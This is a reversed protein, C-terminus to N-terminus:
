EVPMNQMPPGIVDPKFLVRLFILFPVAVLFVAFLVPMVRTSLVNLELINSASQIAVIGLILATPAALFRHDQLRLAQKLCLLAIFWSVTVVAYIGMIWVGIFLIDVNQIFQGVNILRVMSFSPFTIDAAGHGGFILIAAMVTVTILSIYTFLAAYMARRLTQPQSVSSGLVLVPFTRAVVLSASLAALGFSYWDTHALPLLREVNFPQTFVLILVLTTFALGAMAIIEFTRLSNELGAKIALFALFLLVVVHVSIPTGPLVNTETFDVFLRIGFAAFFLEALFYVLQLGRGLVPGFHEELMAPFPSKSKRVIYLFMAIIFYGPLFAALIALWANHQVLLLLRKPVELYAIPFLMILMLTYIQFGTVRYM